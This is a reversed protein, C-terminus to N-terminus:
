VNSEKIMIGNVIWQFAIFAIFFLTSFGNFLQGNIFTTAIFGLGLLALGITYGIIINKKKESAFMTSLPVMMAIGFVAISVFPGIGTILLGAIGILFLLFSIGVFNSSKIEKKGLLYRGYKNLRLYLNSLPTIVWTSFAFIAFVIIIPDLFPQLTAYTKALYGLIRVLLYFGIIVGWQYKANLKGMWFAYKLFLRYVISKAKLAQIMGVQAYESNPDIKLAEKFHELAKKVEGKELLNWGYNAHTYANNPDNKLAGEITKFSDEKQDLKMLASSRVNLATINEADFELAKNALNLAEKYKKRVQKISAWYAYYDADAPDLILAQEIYKEAEDYNSKLIFIRSKLFFLCGSEPNISIATNVMIEADDPKGLQINVEALLTLTLEDNPDSALVGKLLKEAENFKQQQILIQARNIISDVM